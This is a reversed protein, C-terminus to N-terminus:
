VTIFNTGNRETAADGSIINIGPTFWRLTWSIEASMAMPSSVVWFFFLFVAEPSRLRVGIQFPTPVPGSGRPKMPYEGAADAEGHDTGPAGPCLRTSRRWKRPTRALGPPAGAFGPFACPYRAQQAPPVAYAFEGVVVSRNSSM